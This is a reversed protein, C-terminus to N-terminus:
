WLGLWYSVTTVDKAGAQRLIRELRKDFLHAAHYLPTGYRGDYHIDAGHHLLIIAPQVRLRSIHSILPPMVKPEHVFNVQSGNELLIELIRTEEGILPWLGSPAFAITQEQDRKIHCVANTDAGSSALLKLLQTKGQFIANHLATGLVQDDGGQQTLEHQIDLNPGKGLLILVKVLNAQSIQHFLLTGAFTVEGREFIEFTADILAHGSISLVHFIDQFGLLFALQLVPGRFRARTPLPAKIELTTDAGDELLEIALPVQRFRVACALPTSKESWGGTEVDTRSIYRDLLGGARISRMVSLQGNKIGEVVEWFGMEPGGHTILLPIIESRGDKLALDLIGQFEDKLTAVYAKRGLLIEVALKNDCSTASKLLYGNETDLLTREEESPDYGNNILAKFLGTLNHVLTWALPAVCAKYRYRTGAVFQWVKFCHRKVDFLKLALTYTEEIDGTDPRIQGVHFAWCSAAYDLLPYSSKWSSNDEVCISSDDFFLLYHLCSKALFIHAQEASLHFISLDSARLRTSELYELVSAHALRVTKVDVLLPVGEVMISPLGPSVAEDLTVLSSAIDLLERPETFRDDLDFTKDTKTAVAEAIQALTWSSIFGFSEDSSNRYALWQLLACARERDNDDIQSLIREYTLDLTKPLSQLTQRLENVSRCKHLADLQCTVWRFRFGPVVTLLLLNPRM